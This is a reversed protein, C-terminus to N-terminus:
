PTAPVVSRSKQRTWLVMVAAIISLAASILGCIVLGYATFGIRYTFTAFFVSLYMVASNLGMVAGRQSPDLRTLWGVTLNLGLHELVGWIPIFVMLLIFSSTSWALCLYVIALLTFVAALGRVVPLRDLPGDLFIAAAFGVGYLLTLLGADGVSRGLNLELHAGLFNYFGYFGLGLLAVAALAPLIGEVKLATLPSTPTTSRVTTPVEMRALLPLVILVAVALGAYVWPWGFTGAVYASLTVGGVMSLTWGTLITGIVRAEQGKPAIQAALTYLSPIAVGAGIGAFTQATCLMWVDTSAASSALSIALLVLAWFLARTAGFKDALPALLLAAGAVGLGYLASATMVGQPSSEGMSAAVKAAIPSLVLSNSGVVGVIATLLLVSRNM